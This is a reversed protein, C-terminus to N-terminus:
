TGALRDDTVQDLLQDGFPHNNTDLKLNDRWLLLQEVQYLLLNGSPQSSTSELHKNSTFTKGIEELFNSGKHNHRISPENSSSHYSTNFINSRHILTDRNCDHNIIQYKNHKNNTDKM